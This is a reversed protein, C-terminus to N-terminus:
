NRRVMQREWEDAYAAFTGKERLKRMAVLQAESANIDGENRGFILRAAKWKWGTNEEWDEFEFIKKSAEEPPMNVLETHRKDSIPAFAHWPDLNGKWSDIMAPKEDRDDFKPDRDMATEQVLDYLQCKEVETLDKRRAIDKQLDAIDGFSLYGDKYYGDLLQKADRDLQQFRWTPINKFDPPLSKIPEDPFQHPNGNDDWAIVADPGSPIKVRVLRDHVMTYVENGSGPDFAVTEQYGKGDNRVMSTRNLNPAFETYIWSGDKHSHYYSKIMGTEYYSTEESGSADKVGKSTL